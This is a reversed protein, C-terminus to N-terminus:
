LFNFQPEEKIIFQGIRSLLSEKSRTPTEKSRERSCVLLGNMKTNFKDHRVSPDCPIWSDNRHGVLSVAQRHPM